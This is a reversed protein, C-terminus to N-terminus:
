RKLVVRTFNDDSDRDIRKNYPDVGVYRPIKDTVLEVTQKGSTLPRKEILVVSKATYGKKGPESTFAGIEFAEGLPAETEKGQGDAYLKRSEVTFSIAYKGDSTKKATADSARLDYLTIKEFMDTILQQHEPGAEARLLRILDTASPYPAPKFAFEKLLKALARNVAAESITEKLLYMVMAGKRYHLHPQNEVRMLPLEDLPDSSRGSLYTDLERKLFKRVQEPGYLREMVMLASYESLSESLLTGGQKDAGIIQHAWWQHAIEHSAFLTVQDIQEDNRRDDHNQIFGVSESYPITNAFSQAYFGYAPFELIRAQRFQYPSFQESYTQLSMRIADLMRQVNHEHGPHYYVALEVPKGQLDTWTDKKVAYRASQISFFHMIPAETRTVLTRRNGQVTDSVTYGPAVPTQDADTTVQLEASVWDSDKRLYHNANAAQDELKAMGLTEPLGYKRRKSKDQLLGDRSMGILPSIDTNRIFTGNDVIATLRDRNRFGREELLTKFRITRQEGPQMPTTFRYIRYDFQPFEKDLQAGAVELSLMQQEGFWRLHVQDLASPSRNEILYRGTTRARAAHPEIDVALQVDVIRPQPLKEFALLAKEYDANERENDPATRYDNLINTNYFVFAGSGLWVAGAAIGVSRAGGTLRQRARHLQARFNLHVGRQWFAPAGVLLLVAFALWYLQLWGRGIWFRGMGNMDSLPVGPASGYNYLYHEFGLNNLGARSAYYVLMVAWGVFKHPVLAQVFVSLVALLAAGILNPLVFWLLYSPLQLQSYGHYLQFFIAVLAAAVYCALLVLVIAIIKPLMFAWNPAATSDVLEHIRRERDRWVLEGAYYIAVIIPILGFAGTAVQVLERTVPFFRTGGRELSDALSVLVLIVGIGLLVFFAPSRFVFGLDFRTLALFQKYASRESVVAGRQRLATTQTVQEPAAPAPAARKKIGKADFRFLRYTLALLAVAVTLWILRNYLMSGTMTPLLTNREAATWYRTAESLPTLGFPDLLAALALDEPDSLLGQSVGQLVFFAVVGIYSWMMSRTATALAFFLAGLIFMTPATYVLLAQWFPALLTPGINKEDIWPLWSAIFITLLVGCMVVMVVAWAGIFRGFLYDFKNIRTSRILPAFGSDDDRVVANAVFGVLLFVAFSHMVGNVILITFPANVNANGALAARMDSVAIILSTFLAMLVLGVVFLPSRLQYRFEFAAIRAFM